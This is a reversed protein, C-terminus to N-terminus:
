DSFEDSEFVYDEFDEEYRAPATKKFRKGAAERAGLFKNLTKPALPCLLSYHQVASTLKDCFKCSRLRCEVSQHGMSFCNFCRQEVGKEQAVEFYRSVPVGMIKNCEERFGVERAVLERGVSEKTVPRETMLMNGISVALAVVEDFIRGELETRKLAAQVEGSALGEIFKTFYHEPKVELLRAITRFRRGYEVITSREPYNQRLSSFGLDLSSRPAPFNMKMLGRMFTELDFFGGEKCRDYVVDGDSRLKDDMQNLAVQIKTRETEEGYIDEIARMLKSQNDLFLVIDPTSQLKTKIVKSSEVLVKSIRSREAGPTGAATAGSTRLSTGDRTRAGRDEASRSPTEPVRLGSLGAFGAPARAGREDARRPLGVSSASAEGIPELPPMSDEVAAAAGAPAPPLGVGFASREYRKCEETKELM